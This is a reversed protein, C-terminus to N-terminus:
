TRGISKRKQSSESIIISNRFGSLREVIRIMAPRELYYLRGGAEECHTGHPLRM